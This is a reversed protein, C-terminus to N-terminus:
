QAGIVMSIAVQPGVPLGAMQREARRIAAAVQDDTSRIAFVTCMDTENIGNLEWCLDSATNSIRRKLIKQAPRLALNLDGYYVARQLEPDITQGKVTVDPSPASAAQTAAGVLGFGLFGAAILCAIKRSDM